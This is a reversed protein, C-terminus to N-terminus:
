RRKFEEIKREESADRAATSVKRRTQSSVVFRAEGKSRRIRIYEERLFRPSIGRLLCDSRHFSRLGLRYGLLTCKRQFYSFVRPSSPIIKWTAMNFKMQTDVKMHLHCEKDEQSVPINCEEPFREWSEPRPLGRMRYFSIGRGIQWGARTYVVKAM